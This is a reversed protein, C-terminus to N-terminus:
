LDMFYSLLWNKPSNKTNKNKRRFPDLSGYWFLVSGFSRKKSDKSLKFNRLFPSCARPLSNSVLTASGPESRGSKIRWFIRFTKITKLINSFYLINWKLGTVWQQHLNLVLFKKIKKTSPSGWNEARIRIWPRLAQLPRSM